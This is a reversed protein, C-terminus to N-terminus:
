FQDYLLRLESCYEELGGFQEVFKLAEICKQQERDPNYFLQEFTTLWEKENNNDLINSWKVNLLENQGICNTALTSFGRQFAEQLVLNRGEFRSTSIICDSTNDLLDWVNSVAQTMEYNELKQENIMSKIKLIEVTKRMNLFHILKIEPYLKEIEAFFQIQRDFGKQEINSTALCILRSIKRKVATFAFKKQNLPRNFVLKSRINNSYTKKAEAAEDISTFICLESFRLMLYDILYNLKRLSKKKRQHGYYGHHQNIIPINLIKGAIFFLFGHRGHIHLIISSTKLKHLKIVVKFLHYIRKHPVKILKASSLLETNTVSHAIVLHEYEGRMQKIIGDVVTIGGGLKVEPV